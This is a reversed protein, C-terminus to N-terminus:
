RDHEVIKQPLFAALMAVTQARLSAARALQNGWVFMPQMPPIRACDAGRDCGLPGRQRWAPVRRFESVLVDLTGPRHQDIGIDADRLDCM